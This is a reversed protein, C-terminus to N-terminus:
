ASPAKLEFRHHLLLLARELVAGCRFLFPQLSLKGGNLFLQAVFRPSQRALLGGEFIEGQHM